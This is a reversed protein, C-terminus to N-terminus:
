DPANLVPAGGTVNFAELRWRGDDEALISLSAPGVPIIQAPSLGILADLAARIVGGHCVVLATVRSAALAAEAGTRVRNRFEQWPEAGPPTLRGARWEAYATGATERIAAIDRGSWDGLSQERLRPERRADPHGLLAATETARSLDSTAIHDPALGAVLPALARAQARGRDSLAIDTQGQLRRNANWETEGHRVLILRKM